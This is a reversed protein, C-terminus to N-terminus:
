QRDTSRDADGRLRKIRARKPLPRTSRLTRELQHVILGLQSLRVALHRYTRPPIAM